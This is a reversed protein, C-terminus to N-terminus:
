QSRWAFLGAAHRAEQKAHAGVTGAKAIGGSNKKIM